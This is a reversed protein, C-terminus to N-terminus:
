TELSTRSIPWQETIPCEFGVRFPYIDKFASDGRISTESSHLAHM